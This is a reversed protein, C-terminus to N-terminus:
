GIGIAVGNYGTDPASDARGRIYINTGAKVPCYAAYANLNDELGSGVDESTNGIHMRRMIVHKNTADGHAIEIYTRELTITANSLQHAINWWWLNRTTAGLLVWTGDAANGPTFAVGESNTIAGITESYQGVPMNEPHSPQGYFAAGVRVTGATGNSGQIRAAVTSGSKIFHPLLFEPGGGNSFSTSGGCVINSVIATYATGGAPDVGIDLLHNKIAASTFGDSVRLWFAYINQSINAASAIQTWAGEANTAGPIVSTGPSSSPNAGLNDYKFNFRSLAGTIM